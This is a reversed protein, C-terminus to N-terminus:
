IFSALTKRYVIIRNERYQILSTSHHSNDEKGVKALAKEKEWERWRAVGQTKYLHLWLFEARAGSCCRSM